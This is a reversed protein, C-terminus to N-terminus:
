DPKEEASGPKPVLGLKKRTGYMEIRNDAVAKISNVRSLLAGWRADDFDPNSKLEHIPSFVADLCVMLHSMAEIVHISGSLTEEVFLLPRQEEPVDERSLVKSVEVAKGTYTDMLDRAAVNVTQAERDAILGIQCLRRIAEARSRIRNEFMWDDLEKAEGPSMMMQFKLTKKDDSM